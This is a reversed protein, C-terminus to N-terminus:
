WEICYTTDELKGNLILTYPDIDEGTTNYLHSVHDSVNLSSRLGPINSFLTSHIINLGILFSTISPHIFSFLSFSIIQVGRGFMTPTILDLFLSPRRMYCIQTFLRIRLKQHKLSLSISWMSSMPTSPLIINFHLKVSQSQPCMSKISRVISTSMQRGSKFVSIFMLTKYFAPFKNVLKYGNLHSM